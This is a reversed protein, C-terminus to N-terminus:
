LYDLVLAFMHHKGNPCGNIDLHTGKLANCQDRTTSGSVTVERLRPFVVFVRDQAIFSNTLYLHHINSHIGGFAFENECFM